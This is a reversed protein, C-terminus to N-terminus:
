AFLTPSTTFKGIQTAGAKATKSVLPVAQAAVALENWSNVSLCRGLCTPTEITREVALIYRAQFAAAELFERRNM